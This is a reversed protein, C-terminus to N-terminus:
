PGREVPYGRREWEIIGGHMSNVQEFGADLLIDRGEQSRNGSTCVVVIAEGEPVEDIRAPLEHLPILTSGPIHVEEWEEVTRVDLIFAGQDRKEAAQAVSIELSTSLLTPIQQSVWVGIFAIMVLVIGGWLFGQRDDRNTM